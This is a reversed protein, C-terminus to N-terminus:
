KHEKGGPTHTQIAGRPCSKMCAGCRICEMHNPDAYPALDMPCKRRCLGCKNCSDTVELRGVSVKNFAGLVVGFPCLYKCFPRYVPISLLFVTSFGVLKVALRSAGTLAGPIIGLPILLCLAGLLVYKIKRLHREGPLKSFKKGFPIRHMLDQIFGMPCVWSCAWRGGVALLLLLAAFFM